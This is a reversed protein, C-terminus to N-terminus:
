LPSRGPAARASHAPVPVGARDAGRRASGRHLRDAHEGPVERRATLFAERDGEIWAWRRVVGIVLAAGLIAAWLGLSEPAGLTASQAPTLLWAAAVTAAMWFALAGYRWPWWGLTAGALTAMVRALAYDCFSLAISPARILLRLPFVYWRRWLRAGTLARWWGLPALRRRAVDEWGIILSAAAVIAITLLGTEPDITQEDLAYHGLAAAQAALPAYIVTLYVVLAILGGIIWGGLTGVSPRWFVDDILTSRQARAEWRARETLWAWAARAAHWDGRRGADDEEAM